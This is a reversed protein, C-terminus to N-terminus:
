KQKPQANPHYIIGDYELMTETFRNSKLADLIRRDKTFDISVSKEPDLEAFCGKCLRQLAGNPYKGDVQDMTFVNQLGFKQKLKGGLLPEENRLHLAGVYVLVKGSAPIKGTMFEDRGDDDKDDNEHTDMAIIPIGLRRAERLIDFYDHDIRGQTPYKRAILEKERDIVKQLYAEDGTAAYSDIETQLNSELELALVDISNSLLKRTFRHNSAYAHCEGICVIRQGDQLKRLVLNFPDECLEAILEIFYRRNFKSLEKERFKKCTEMLIDIVDM